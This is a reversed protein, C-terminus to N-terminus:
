PQLMASELQPVRIPESLYWCCCCCCCSCVSVSLSQVRKKKKKKESSSDILQNSFLLVVFVCRKGTGRVEKLIELVVEIFSLSIATCLLRLRRSSQVTSHQHTTTTRKSASLATHYHVVLSRSISVPCPVLKFLTVVCLWADSYSPHHNTM